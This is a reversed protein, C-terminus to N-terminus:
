MRVGPRPEFNLKSSPSDRPLSRPFDGPNWLSAVRGPGGLLLPIPSGFRGSFLGRLPAMRGAAGAAPGLGSPAGAAFFSGTSPDGEAAGGGRNEHGHDEHDSERSFRRGRRDLGLALLRGGGLLRLGGGSLRRELLGAGLLRLLGFGRGPRGHLQFDEFLGDELHDLPAVELAGGAAHLPEGFCGPARAAWKGGGDLALYSTMSRSAPSADAALCVAAWRSCDDVPRGARRAPSSSASVSWPAVTGSALLGMREDRDFGSAV